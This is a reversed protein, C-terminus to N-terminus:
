DEGGWDVGPIRGGDKNWMKLITEEDAFGDEFASQICGITEATRQASPRDTRYLSQCFKDCEAQSMRRIKDPEATKIIELAWKQEATMKKNDLM